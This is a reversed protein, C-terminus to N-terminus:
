GDQSFIEGNCDLGVVPNFRLVVSAPVHVSLFFM